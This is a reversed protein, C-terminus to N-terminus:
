EKIQVVVRFLNSDKNNVEVGCVRYKDNNIHKIIDSTDNWAEDDSAYHEIVVENKGKSVKLDKM